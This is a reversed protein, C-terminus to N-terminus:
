KSVTMEVKTASEDVLEATAEGRWSTVTTCFEGTPATWAVYKGPGNSKPDVTILVAEMKPNDRIVKGCIEAAWNKSGSYRFSTVTVEAALASVSFLSIVSLIKLSM